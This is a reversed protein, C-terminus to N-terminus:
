PDQSLATHADMTTEYHGVISGDQNINYGETSVSGPVKFPKLGDQFTGIYTLPVSDVAKARAVITQADNIGHVFFYEFSAVSPLALSVFRGTPTRVYPHYIGNADVYSGVMGGQSNIFDAFTEVAGPVEIIETGTFGRRVGSADIFNGTLAGTSDSIGYLETQVSGPFDYQRLEGNELVIGRHLGANDEYHGAANGNNGLAFFYTNKAGPFDYTQFVGDILTFAVKKQGDASLTYGAYDEFDSSAAVALFDVGPVDISEFTYNDSADTAESEANVQAAAYGTFCIILCLLLFLKTKIYHNM